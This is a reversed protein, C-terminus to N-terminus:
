SKLKPRRHIHYSSKAFFLAPLGKEPIVSRERPIKRYNQALEKALWVAGNVECLMPNLCPMRLTGRNRSGFAGAIGSHRPSM